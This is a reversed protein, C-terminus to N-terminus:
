KIHLGSFDTKYPAAAPQAPTGDSKVTYGPPLATGQSSMPHFAAFGDNAQSASTAAVAKARGKVVHKLTRKATAKAFARFGLKRWMLVTSVANTATQVSEAAVGAAQDGYKHQVFSSTANTASTSLVDGAQEMAMYVDALAVVAADRVEAFASPTKEKTQGGGGIAQAVTVPARITSGLASAIAVSTGAMATVLSSAVTTAAGSAKRAASVSKVISPPVHAPTTSPSTRSQAYSSTKNLGAATVQATYSIGRSAHRGAQEILAILRDRRRQPAEPAVAFESLQVLASEFLEVDGGMTTAALRVGYFAGPVMFVYNLPATRMAPVERGLSWYVQGVRLMAVPEDATSHAHQHQHSKSPAQLESAPQKGYHAAAAAGDGESDSDDSDYTEVYAPPADRPREAVLLELPGTAILEASLHTTPAASSTSPADASALRFVEVSELRVLVAAVADGGYAM